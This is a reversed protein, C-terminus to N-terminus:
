RVAKQLTAWTSYLQLKQLVAQGCDACQDHSIYDNLNLGIYKQM